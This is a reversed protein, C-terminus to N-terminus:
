NRVQQIHGTKFAIYIRICSHEAALQDLDVTKWKAELDVMFLLYTQDPFVVIVCKLGVWTMKLFLWPVNVIVLYRYSLLHLAFMKRKPKLINAFNSHVCLLAYCFLSLSM